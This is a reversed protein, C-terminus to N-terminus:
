RTKPSIKIELKEMKQVRGRIGLTYVPPGHTGMIRFKDVAAHGFAVRRIQRLCVYM